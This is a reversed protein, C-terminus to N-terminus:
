PLPSTPATQPLGTPTAPAAEPVPLSEATVTEPPAPLTEPVPPPLSGAPIFPEVPLPLTKCEAFVRVTCHSCIGRDLRQFITDIAIRKAPFIHDVGLEAIFGLKQWLAM